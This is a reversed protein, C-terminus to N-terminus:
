RVSLKEILKFVDDSLRRLYQNGQFCGIALVVLALIKRKQDSAVL